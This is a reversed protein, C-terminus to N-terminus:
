LMWERIPMRLSMPMAANVSQAEALALPGWAVWESRGECLAGDAFLYIRDRCDHSVGNVVENEVDRRFREAVDGFAEARDCAECPVVPLREAHGGARRGCTCRVGWARFLAGRTSVRPMDEESQDRTPDDLLLVGGFAGSRYWRAGTTSLQAAVFELRLMYLKHGARSATRSWERLKRADLRSAFAVFEFGRERHVLATVLEGQKAPAHVTCCDGSNAIWHANHASTVFTGDPQAGWQAADIATLLQTGEFTESLRSCAFRMAKREPPDDALDRLLAVYRAEDSLRDYYNTSPREALSARVSALLGEYTAVERVHFEAYREIEDAYFAAFLPECAAHLVLLSTSKDTKM